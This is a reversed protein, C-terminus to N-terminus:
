ILTGFRRNSREDMTAIASASSLQRIEDRAPLATLRHNADRLLRRQRASGLRHAGAQQPDITEHMPRAMQYAHPEFRSL